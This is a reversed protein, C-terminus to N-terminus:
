RITSVAWFDPDLGGFITSKQDLGSFFPPNQLTSVVFFLIWNLSIPIEGAFITSKAPNLPKVKLFWSEVLWLKQSTIVQSLETPEAM